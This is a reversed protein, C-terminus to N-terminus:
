ARFQQHDTLGGAWVRRLFGSHEGFIRCGVSGAICKVM